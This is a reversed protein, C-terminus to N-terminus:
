KHGIITSNYVRLYTITCIMERTLAEGRCTKAGQISPAITHEYPRLRIWHHYLPNTKPLLLKRFSAQAEEDQRVGTKVHNEYDIM